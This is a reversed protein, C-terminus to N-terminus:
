QAEEQKCMVSRNGQQKNLSDQGGCSINDIIGRDREGEDEMKWKEYIRISKYTHPLLTLSFSFSLMLDSWTVDTDLQRSSSVCSPSM